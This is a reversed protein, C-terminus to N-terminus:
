SRTLWVFVLWVVVVALALLMWNEFPIVGLIAHQRVLWDGV